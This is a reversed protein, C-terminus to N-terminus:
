PAAKVRSRWWSPAASPARGSRGFQVAGPKGSVRNPSETVHTGCGRQHLTHPESRLFDDTACFVATMFTELDM